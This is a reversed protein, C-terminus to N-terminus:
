FDHKVLPKIKATVLHVSCQCEISLRVFERRKFIHIRIFYTYIYINYM